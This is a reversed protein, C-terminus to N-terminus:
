GSSAGGGAPPAALTGQCSKSAAQFKASSRINSPFVGGHGSLNPNPLNYGHQRVCTVYKQITHRSFAAPRRGRPLRAGCARLAAQFKSNNAGGPFGSPPGGAPPSGSPQTGAPPSGSGTGAAGAPAGGAGPGAAAPFNIGHQRLCTALATRSTHAGAATSASSSTSSSASNSNSSSSGCGATLGVLAITLAVLTPRSKTLM